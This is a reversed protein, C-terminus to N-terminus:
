TGPELEVAFEIERDLLIGPLDDPFVDLFECVIPVSDFISSEVHTDCIYALYSEYGRLILRRSNVYSIIWRPECSVAGQWVVPPIGPMALTVTKAFCDMVAHYHALRDMFLIIDFDLMSLVTLDAYADVDRVTVVCSRFVRHMVLSDGMPISVRLPVSLLDSTLDLWPAYYSSIYYYTSGHDFLALDSKRCILIAGTVVANLTEAEPRTPVAYM